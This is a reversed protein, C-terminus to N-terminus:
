PTLAVLVGASGLLFVEGPLQLHPFELRSWSRGWSVQWSCLSLALGLSHTFLLVLLLPPLPPHLSRWAWLMM